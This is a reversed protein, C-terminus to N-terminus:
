RVLKFGYPTGSEGVIQVVYFGSPQDIVDFHPTPNGDYIYQRVMSGALNYIRAMVANEPLSASYFGSGHWILRAEEAPLASITERQAAVEANFNDGFSFVTDVEDEPPIGIPNSMVAVKGSSLFETAFLRMLAQNQAGFSIRFFDGKRGHVVAPMLYFKEVELAMPVNKQLALSESMMETWQAPTYLDSWLDDSGESYAANYVVDEAEKITGTVDTANYEANLLGYIYHPLDEWVAIAEYPIRSDYRIMEIDRAYGTLWSKMTDSIHNPDFNEKLSYALIPFAKNEASVIVYGGAPHNYVYFPNFLRGTTLRRGNYVLKPEAMKQKYAANFFQSAIQSAQKQTVTEAYAGFPACALVTFLITQVSHRM